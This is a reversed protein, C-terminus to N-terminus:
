RRGSGSSLGGWAAQVSGSGLRGTDVGPSRRRQKKEKEMAGGITAREGNGREEHAPELAEGHCPVVRLALRTGKRTTGEARCRAVPLYPSGPRAQGRRAAGADGQPVKM